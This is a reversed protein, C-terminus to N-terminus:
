KGFITSAVVEINDPRGMTYYHLAPVHAAYLEESQRICWQTGIERIASPDESHAIVNDRLHKPLSIGFVKPLLEIQRLTSLPKLGPVVPVDIGHQHCRDLFRFYKDNDFFMQTVIYEGGADIKEKLHRIDEDASVAEAHVEPYGAVGICFDSPAASQLELYRGNNMEKIQRVLDVAHANGGKEPCFPGPEGKRADGRLALINHIGLFNLEILADETAERTFGGCILHPVMDIDHKFSLAAALAVTGPRKRVVTRRGDHWEIESQHYTINVYSPNFPKLRQITQSLTDISEGKMPPLLEFTFLTKGGKFRDIVKM